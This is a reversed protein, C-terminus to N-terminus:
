FNRLHNLNKVEGPSETWPCLFWGKAMLIVNYILLLCLMHFNKCFNDIKKNTCYIQFTDFSM